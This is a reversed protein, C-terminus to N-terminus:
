AVWIVLYGGTSVYPNVLYQENPSWYYPSGDSDDYSDFIFGAEELIDAYEDVGDEPNDVDLMIYLEYDDDEVLVNNFEPFAPLADTYGNNEMFAAIEDAPWETTPEAPEFKGPYVDIIVKYGSSSSYWLNIYFQENPSNYNMDGYEDKGGETFNATKLTADYSAKAAQAASSSSYVAQVQVNGGTGEFVNYSDAGELAPVVDTITSDLNSVASAVKSTPWTASGQEPEAAEFYITITGPTAAPFVSVYIEENPSVYRDDGIDTKGNLVYGATPLAAVYAAAGAAETGEDVLVVVATGWYDDLIQFGNNTGTYEPVTDKIDSGLLTAIQIAPWSEYTTGPIIDPAGMYAYITLAIAENDASYYLEMTASGVNEINLTCVYYTEDQSTKEEIDWGVTDLKNYYTTFDSESCNFAYVSANIYDEMEFAYYLVNYDDEQFAFYANPADITPIDFSTAEWYEFFEAIAEAPWSYFYPDFAQLSFGDDEDDEVYVYVFRNGESTSVSKEVAYVGEDEGVLEYGSDLLATQYEDIDVEGGTITIMDNEEDYAVVSDDSGTFPLVEGYLYTAMLASQESTWGPDGTNGSSNSSDSTGSGNSSDSGGPNSSSSGGPNSSSSSGDDPSGSDGYNNGSDSSDADKNSSDGASDQSSSDPLFKNLDCGTTMGVTLLGLLLIKAINKM